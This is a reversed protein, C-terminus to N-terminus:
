DKEWSDEFDFKKTKSIITIEGPFKLVFTVEENIYIM